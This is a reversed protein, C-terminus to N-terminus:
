GQHKGAGHCVYPHQSNKKFQIRLLKTVLAWCTAKVEATHSPVGGTKSLIDLYYGSVETIFIAQFHMLFEGHLKMMVLKALPSGLSLSITGKICNFARTVGETL